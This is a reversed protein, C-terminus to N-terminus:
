EDASTNSVFPSKVLEGDVLEIKMEGEEPILEGVVGDLVIEVKGCVAETFIIEPNSKVDKLKREITKLSHKKDGMLEKLPTIAELLQIFADRQEKTINYSGAKRLNEMHKLIVQSINTSKVSRILEEGFLKKLNDLNNEAYEIFRTNEKAIEDLHGKKGAKFKGVFGGNGAKVKNVEIRDGAVITCGVANNVFVENGSIYSNKATGKITLKGEAVLRASHANEVDIDKEGSVASGIIDGSIIINGATQISVSEDVDGEVIVEFQSVVVSGAKLGGKIEIPKDLTVRVPKSGDLEAIQDLTLGLWRKSPFQENTTVRVRLIGTHTAQAENGDRSVFTKEGASIIYEKPEFPFINDGKVDMGLEEGTVGDKKRCIKQGAELKETGSIFGEDMEKVGCFYQIEGDISPSPFKGKGIILGKIPKNEELSKGVAAQVRKHDVFETKIGEAKLFEIVHGSTVTAGNKLRPFLDLKVVMNDFEHGTESKSASLKIKPDNANPDESVMLVTVRASGTGIGHKEINRYRLFDVPVNYQSSISKKAERFINLLVSDPIKEQPLEIEVQWSGDEQPIIDPNKIQM